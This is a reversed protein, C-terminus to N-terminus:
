PRVPETKCKGGTLKAYANQTLIGNIICDSGQEPCCTGDACATAVQVGESPSLTLPTAALLAAACLVLRTRRM